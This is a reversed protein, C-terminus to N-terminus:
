RAQHLEVHQQVLPGFALRKARGDPVPHRQNHVAGAREMPLGALPADAQEVPKVVRVHGAVAARETQTRSAPVSHADVEVARVMHGVHRQHVQIHGAVVRPFRQCPEQHQALVQGQRDLLDLAHGEARAPARAQVHVVHEADTPGLLQRGVLCPTHRGPPDRVHVVRQALVREAQVGVAQAVQIPGRWLLPDAGPVFVDAQPAPLVAGHNVPGHLVVAQQHVLGQQVLSELVQAPRM